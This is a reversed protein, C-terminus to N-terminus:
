QMSEELIETAAARLRKVARHVRMKLVSQPRAYVSRLEEYNLSECFRLLLLARDDASVRQLALNLSRATEQRAAHDEGDPFATAWMAEASDPLDTPYERRASARRHNRCVNIAIKILWPRFPRDADFRHRSKFAQLFVEQTLEAAESERAVLRRVLSYVRSQYQRLLEGFADTDGRHARQRLEREWEPAGPDTRERDVHRKLVM